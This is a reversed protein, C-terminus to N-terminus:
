PLTVQPVPRSHYLGHRWPSPGFTEPVHKEGRELVGPRSISTDYRGAFGAASQINWGGRLGRNRHPGMSPEVRGPYEIVLLTEAILELICSLSFRTRLGRTCM